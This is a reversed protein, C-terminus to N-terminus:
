ETKGPNNIEELKRMGKKRHKIILEWQMILEARKADDTEEDIEAKLSNAKEKLKQLTNVLKDHDDVSDLLMYKKLKALWSPQDVPVSM